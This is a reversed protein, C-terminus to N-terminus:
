IAFFRICKLYHWHLKTFPLELLCCDKQWIQQGRLVRFLISPGSGNLLFITLHKCVRFAHCTVICIKWAFEKRMTLIFLVKPPLSSATSSLQIHVNPNSSQKGCCHYQTPSVSRQGGLRFFVKLPRLCSTHDALSAAGACRLLRDAQRVHVPWRSTVSPPGCSQVSFFLHSHWLIYSPDFM